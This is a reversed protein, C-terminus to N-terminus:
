RLPTVEVARPPPPACVVHVFPYSRCGRAYFNAVSLLRTDALIENWARPKANCEPKLSVTTQATNM